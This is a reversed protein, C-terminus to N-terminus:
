AKRRWVGAYAVTFQFKRRHEYILFPMDEQHVFEFAPALVAKLTDATKVVAGSESDVYGGLWHTRPAYEELWTFPSTIVLLGGPVVLRALRRLFSRPDAVRDILNAGLLVDVPGNLDAPELVTADGVSFHVRTRDVSPDVRAVLEATLAGETPLRYPLAGDRVLVKGAQVFALSLDMALVEACHKALQFSSRGVACGLDLARLKKKARQEESLFRACLEACRGPYDLAAAPLHAAFPGITDAASGFHFHLYMALTSDSEYVDCGAAPRVVRFGAHQHFHRRFAYRAYVSAENGCSVFCGGLLMNHRKDFCPASFDQYLPHTRYGPLSDNLTSSWEWVNGFLDYIGLATPPYATVSTPTSHQLWLNYPPRADFAPDALKLPHDATTTTTPTPTTTAIISTNAQSLNVSGPQPSQQQPSQDTSQVSDQRQTQAAAEHFAHLDQAHRDALLRWEFEDIPRMGEGKWRCFAEAELYNVEVPWDWPMDVECFLVRLRYMQTGPVPRWFHPHQTNSGQVWSWGEASWYDRRQYGKDNMFELWEANTVKFQSVEFARVRTRKEGYDVDWGYSPLDRPKGLTVDGGSVFVMRNEPAKGLTPAPAPWGEPARVHELDFERLLVSSTDLHIHAHEVGMLVSWAKPQDWSLPPTWELRKIIGVMLDYVKRRYDWVEAVPPWDFHDDIMDDWDMEDVGIAFMEEFKPNIRQTESLNGALIMKNVYFVATHGLYFILPRRLKNPFLYYDADSRVAGMLREYMNWCRSFYALLQDNTVTRCDPQPLYPGGLANQAAISSAM